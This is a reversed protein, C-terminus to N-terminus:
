PSGSNYSTATVLQRRSWPYLICYNTRDTISQKFAFMNKFKNMVNKSSELSAVMKAVNKCKTM